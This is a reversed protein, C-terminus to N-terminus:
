GDVSRLYQWRGRGDNVADSGATRRLAVHATFQSVGAAHAARAENEKVVVEGIASVIGGQASLRSDRSPFTGATRAHM